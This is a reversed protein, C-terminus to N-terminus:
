EQAPMKAAIIAAHRSEPIEKKKKKKKNRHLCKPLLSQLMAPPIKPTIQYNMENEKKGGTCANQRCHYFIYRSPNNAHLAEENAVFTCKRKKGKREKEGKM